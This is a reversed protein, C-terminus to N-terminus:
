ISALMTRQKNSYRERTELLASDYHVEILNIPKTSYFRHNYVTIVVYLNDWGPDLEEGNWVIAHYNVIYESGQFLPTSRILLWEISLLYAERWSDSDYPHDSRGDRTWSFQRDEKVVACITDPFHKSGKRNKSVEAVLMRGFVYEGRSEHYVNLALCEIESYEGKFIDTMQRDPITINDYWQESWALSQQPFLVM